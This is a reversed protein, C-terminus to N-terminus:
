SNATKEPFYKAHLERIAMRLVDSRSVGLLEVLQDARALDGAGPRFMVQKTEGTTDRGDVRKPPPPVPVYKKKPKPM